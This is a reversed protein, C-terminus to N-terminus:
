STDVMIPTKLGGFYCILSDESFLHFVKSVVGDTLRASTTLAKLINGDSTRQSKFGHVTVDSHNLM